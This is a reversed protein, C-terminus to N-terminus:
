SAKSIMRARAEYLFAVVQERKVTPLGSVATGGDAGALVGVVIHETGELAVTGGIVDASAALYARWAEQSVVVVRSNLREDRDLLPRGLNMCAGLMAFLAPSVRAVIARSAGDATTTSTSLSVYAAMDSLTKTSARWHFFQQQEMLVREETGGHSTEDAPVTEVIRVLQDSNPYPLPDLLVSKVVCIIATSAAIGLSLTLLVVATFGPSRAARKFAHRVDQSVSELWFSPSAERFREVHGDDLVPRRGDLLRQGGHPQREVRANRGPMQAEELGSPGRGAALHEHVEGCTQHITELM